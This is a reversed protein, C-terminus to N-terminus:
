NKSWCSWTEFRVWINHHNVKQCLKMFKLYFVTGELIYVLHKKELIQGLLRIKSGVQGLKTNSRSIIIILKRVYNWSSLILVTGELPYM